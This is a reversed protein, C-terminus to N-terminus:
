CRCAACSTRRKKCAHSRSPSEKQPVEHETGTGKIDATLHSQLTELTRIELQHRALAAQVAARQPGSLTHKPKAM